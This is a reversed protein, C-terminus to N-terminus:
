TEPGRRASIMSHTLNQPTPFLTVDSFDGFHFLPFTSFHFLRFTSFDFPLFTSFYFLRSPLFQFESMMTHTLNRPGRPASVMSHTHNRKGKPASVVSHTPKPPPVRLRPCFLFVVNKEDEGAPAVAGPHRLRVTHLTKPAGTPRFWVTRLTEPDMPASIM